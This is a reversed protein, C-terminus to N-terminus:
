GQGTDTPRQAPSMFGAQFGLVMLALVSVGTIAVAPFIKLESAVIALVTLIVGAVAYAGVAAEKRWGRRVLQDYPHDRDGALLSTGARRRRVVAFLLEAAPLLVLLLAGVGTPLQTGPAWCL